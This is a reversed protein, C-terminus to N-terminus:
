EKNQHVACCCMKTNSGFFFIKVFFFYFIFLSSSLETTRKNQSQWSYFFSFSNKTSCFAWISSSSPCLYIWAVDCVALSFSFRIKNQWWNRRINRTWQCPPYPASIYELNIKMCKWIPCMMNVCVISSQWCGGVFFPPFSKVQVRTCCIHSIAKQRKIRKYQHQPKLIENM